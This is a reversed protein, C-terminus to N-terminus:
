PKPVASKLDALAKQYDGSVQAWVDPDNTKILELTTALQAALPLLQNLLAILALPNM